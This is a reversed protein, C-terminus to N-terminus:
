NIEEDKQKLSKLNFALSALERISLDEARTKFDIKSQKLAKFVLDKKWDLSSSISNLVM